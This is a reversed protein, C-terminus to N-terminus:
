INEHLFSYIVDVCFHLIPLYFIRRSYNIVFPFRSPSPIFFVSPSERMMLIRYDVRSESSGPILPKCSPFQYSQCIQIDLTNMASMMPVEMLVTHGWLFFELDM